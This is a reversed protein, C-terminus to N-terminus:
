DTISDIMGIIADEVRPWSDSDPAVLEFHGANEIGIYTAPDDLQAATAAYASSFSPKVIPDEDGHILVQPIGLPLVHVPSTLAYRQARKKVTGGMLRRVATGCVNVKEATVLDTVAALAIVGRVPLPNSAGPADAPLRGRVGLWLALQGGASHGTAVIRGLDLPYNRALVRLHDVASAVDEFTGPWGGGRDGVRRYEINWTAVGRATLAASLAATGELGFDSLWCGGHIVVVVPVTAGEEASPPLRLEGFHEPAKGYREIADAPPASLQEYDATTMLRSQGFAEVSAVSVM